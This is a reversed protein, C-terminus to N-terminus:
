PKRAKLDAWAKQAEAANKETSEFLEATCVYEAETDREAEVIRDAEATAQSVLDDSAGAAKLDTLFATKLAIDPVGCKQGLIERYTLPTVIPAIDSMDLGAAPGQQPAFGALMGLGVLASFGQVRRRSAAGIASPRHLM